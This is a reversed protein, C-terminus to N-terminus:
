FDRFPINSNIIKINGLKIQKLRLSIIDNINNIDRCPGIVIKNLMSIPIKVETYPIINGKSNIRFKILNDDFVKCYYRSEKEFSFSQHKLLVSATIGIDEILELQKNFIEKEDKLGNVREYYMYYLIKVYNYIISNKTFRGYSVRVSCPKSPDYKTLDSILSHDKSIHFQIKLGLAVGYGNNAYMNWMPLSDKANSFSIVFPIHRTNTLSNYIIQPLDDFKGNNSLNSLKYENKDIHLEKEISPLLRWFKEFGYVLEYKDNLESIRSAYFIFSDDKIGDLLKFFTELSTYHYVNQMEIKM